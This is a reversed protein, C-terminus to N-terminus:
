RRVRQGLMDALQKQFEEVPEGSAGLNHILSKIAEIEKASAQNGALKLSQLKTTTGAIITAKSAQYLKEAQQLISEECKPNQNKLNDINEAIKALDGNGTDQITKAEAYIRAYASFENTVKDAKRVYPDFPKERDINNLETQTAKNLAEFLQPDLELKHIEGQAELIAAQIKEISAVNVTEPVPEAKKASAVVTNEAVELKGNLGEIKEILTEARARLKRAKFAERKERLQSNVKSEHGVHRLSARMPQPVTYLHQSFDEAQIAGDLFDHSIPQGATVMSLSYLQDAIKHHQEAALLRATDGALFRVPANATQSSGKLPHAQTHRHSPQEIAAAGGM